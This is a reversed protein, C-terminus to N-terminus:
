ARKDKILVPRLAALGPPFSQGATYDAFYDARIRATYAVLNQCEARIFDALPNPWEPSILNECLGFAACDCESPFDGLFFPKSGLLVSLAKAARQSLFLQDAPSHRSLGQGYSSNAVDVRIMSTIIGRIIAPIKGFYISATKHWAGENESLGTAGLWRVSVLSWYLFNECILRVSDCAAQPVTFLDNCLNLSPLEIVSEFYRKTIM